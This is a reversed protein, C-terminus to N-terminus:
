PLSYCHEVLNHDLLPVRGEVSAIMTAKDTLSLINSPLYNDFDVKMRKKISKSRTDKFISEINNIIKFFNFSIKSWNLM